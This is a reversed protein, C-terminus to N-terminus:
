PREVRKRKMWVGLMAGVGLGVCWAAAATLTKFSENVGVILGIGWVTSIVGALVARRENVYIVGLAFLAEIVMGSVFAAAIHMITTM